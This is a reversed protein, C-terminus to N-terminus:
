NQIPATIRTFKGNNKAALDQLFKTENPKSM